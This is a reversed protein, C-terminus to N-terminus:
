LMRSLLKTIDEHKGLVGRPFTKQTSKKFGGIPPHLRCFNRYKGAVDKQGRKAIVEDMFKTDVTGYAVHNRVANLMGLQVLDKEDIFTCTLKKGLRLRDLTEKIESKVNVQGVIRIVAITM